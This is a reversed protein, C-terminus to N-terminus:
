PMKVFREVRKRLKWTKRGHDGMYRLRMGEEIGATLIGDPLVRNPGRLRKKVKGQGTGVSFIRTEM